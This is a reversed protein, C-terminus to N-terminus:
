KDECFRDWLEVHNDTLAEKKNLEKLAKQIIEAAKPGINITKAREASTDWRFTGNETGNLKFAKHEEESFSLEGRLDRLIRLTDISGSAPLSGLLVLREKVSFDIDTM